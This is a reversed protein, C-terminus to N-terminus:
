ESVELMVISKAPQQLVLETGNMKVEDFAGPKVAEPNEFTNHANMVPATLIQGTVQVPKIGPLECKVEIANKPDINCISIHILGDASRSASASIAPISDNNFAYEGSNIKLPLAMADQHVAFMRFVHYTPTTIMKEADTLIMSQLVNVTQAINAMKVRGCYRNFINLTLGAALADRLTNQQYLFNKNTDPEVDHWLGWEDVILGVRKDPDYKDMIKAHKQVLEEMFIAKKLTLFWEEESFQIAFGKEEWTGPFVYYHLSLGSMQAAAERMLVETWNYDEGYAGCAIRFLKNDGYDRVFTQYQRYLDAYYEPRMNGGCAWSENGVGWYTMKWAQDRGNERRLDAMCSKGAFTLYEVWEQMEGVTGSGVNGCIYPECGLQECLDLFEHSGFHNSDTVQGWHTNVIEARKEKPGIGNKWHYEDAFCGGPWRLNPIRIEKLAEVVDKRIGRTNPISSDQGVWIGDYICRGLHEAFHGYIHRSIREKGQDANIIIKTM